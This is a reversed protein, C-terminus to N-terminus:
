QPKEGGSGQDGKGFGGGSPPSLGFASIAQALTKGDVGAPLNLARDRIRAALEPKGQMQLLM